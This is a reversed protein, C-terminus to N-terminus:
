PKRKQREKKRRERRRAKGDQPILISANAIPKVVYPIIDSRFQYSEKEEEPIIYVDDGFESKIKLVLEPTHGSGMILVKTM